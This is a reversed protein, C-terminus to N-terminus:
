PRSYAHPFKTALLEELLAPLRRNNGVCFQWRDVDFFIFNLAFTTIYALYIYLETKILKKLLVM